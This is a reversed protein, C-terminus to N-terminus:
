LWGESPNRFRYEVWPETLICKPQAPEDEIKKPLTRVYTRLYELDDGYDPGWVTRLLTAHPLLSAQNRMLLALLDFETPTLHIEQGARRLLGDRSILKWTAPRCCRLLPM